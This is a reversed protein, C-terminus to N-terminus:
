QNAASLPGQCVVVIVVPV